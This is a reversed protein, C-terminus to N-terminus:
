LSQTSTKCLLDHELAHLFESIKQYAKMSFLKKCFKMRHIEAQNLSNVNRYFEFTTNVLSHVAHRHDLIM